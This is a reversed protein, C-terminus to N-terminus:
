FLDWPPVKRLEEIAKQPDEEPQKGKVRKPPNPNPSAVNEKQPSRNHKVSPKAKSKASTTAPARGKRKPISAELEEPTAKIPGLSFNCVMPPLLIVCSIPYCCALPVAPRVGLFQFLRLSSRMCIQIGLRIDM